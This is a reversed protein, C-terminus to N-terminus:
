PKPGMIKRAREGGSSQSINTARTERNSVYVSKPPTLKVVAKWGRSKEYVADAVNGSLFRSAMYIAADKDDAEVVVKVPCYIIAELTVEFATM